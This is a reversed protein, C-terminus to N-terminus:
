KFTPVPNTKRMVHINYRYNNQNAFDLYEYVLNNNTFVFMNMKKLVRKSEELFDKPNFSM